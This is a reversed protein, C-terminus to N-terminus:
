LFKNNIIRDSLDRPIKNIDAVVCKVSGNKIAHSFISEKIKKIISYHFNERQAYQGDIFNVLEVEKNKHWFHLNISGDSYVTIEAPGMERNFSSIKMGHTRTTEIMYITTYRCNEKTVLPGHSVEYTEGSWWFHDIRSDKMPPGLYESILNDDIKQPNCRLIKQELLIIKESRCLSKKVVEM